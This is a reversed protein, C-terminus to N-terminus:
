IARGKRQRQESQGQAATNGVFVAIDSKQPVEGSVLEATSFESTTDVVKINAVKRRTSGLSRGTDPDVFAKGERVIDLVDGTQLMADGFNLYISGGDIAVVRIPFISGTILAATKRAAARQVDALPDSATDVHTMGRTAIGKGTVVTEEVAEAIRIEGTRADVVKIDIGFTTSARETRISGTAVVKTTSGFKTISGYVIYDVGSVNMITNNNSFSEQLAQEGLVQDVRNREMIRFRNIKTLQTELMTQFNASKSNKYDQWQGSDVTSIMETVAIHPLDGESKAGVAKPAHVALVVLCLGWALAYPTRASSVQHARKRGERNCMTIGEQIWAMNTIRQNDRRRVLWGRLSGIAEM